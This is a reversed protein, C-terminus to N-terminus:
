DRKKPTSKGHIQGKEAGPGRDRRKKRKTLHGSPSGDDPAQEM